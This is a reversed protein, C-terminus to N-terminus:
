IYVLEDPPADPRGIMQPIKIVPMNVGDSGSSMIEWAKHALLLFINEHDPVQEDLVAKIMAEDISSEANLVNSYHMNELERIIELKAQTDSSLFTAAVDLASGYNKNPKYQLYPEQLFNM